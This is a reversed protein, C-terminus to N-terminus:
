LIWRLGVMPEFRRQVLYFQTGEASEFARAYSYRSRILIWVNGSLLYQANFLLATQDNLEGFLSFFGTLGGRDVGLDFRLRNVARIFLRLHYESLPLTGYHRRFHYWFEFREFFLLRFETVLDNGGFAQDLAIGVPVVQAEDTLYADSDLIRARPNHVGYFSGVFGPIFREGNYFLAVRLRFRALDLFQLSEMDAGLGIGNGHHEYWAYSGFPSFRLDGSRIATFSLDVNFASLREVEADWTGLDTVYNLGIELTRTRLDRVRRMPAVSLRGGTVGNMFVNDTFFRFQVYSSQQALEVGMTREDWAVSSNYFSVLHGTGLTAREIPGLRLHASSTVPPNYRVFEVLRLLDYPEDVDPAYGGLVGARVTGSLRGTFSRGVFSYTGSGAMRWQPGILSPGAMVHLTRDRRWWVTQIAERPDDSSGFLLPPAQARAPM